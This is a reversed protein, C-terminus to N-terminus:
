TLRTATKIRARVQIKRRGAKTQAAVGTVQEDGALAWGSGISYKTENASAAFCKACTLM